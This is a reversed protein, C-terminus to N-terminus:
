AKAGDAGFVDRHADLLAEWDAAHHFRLVEYGADELRATADEDDSRKDPQDHIPGDIFVAVREEGYLFDPRAQATAILKQSHSPLQRRGAVLLDLFRRELDSDARVRLTELHEDPPASGVAASVTSRALAVLVDKIAHRDLLRHDRQNGYSLLCDYCAAECRETVGPAHECDEGTEPDFHCISLAERAVEALKAQDDLLRRLVGAGGEAAEFFMLLRRLSSTPLPEAALEQEELQFVAQIGRKLAAQLSAMQEPTVQDDPELLLCNRRDEVFPIVRRASGSM